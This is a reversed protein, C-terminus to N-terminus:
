LVTLSATSGLLVTGGTVSMEDVTHSGTLALVPDDAGGVDLAAAPGDGTVDYQQDTSQPDLTFAVADVSTPVGDSWNSPKNWDGSTAIWNTTAM